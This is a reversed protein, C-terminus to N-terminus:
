GVRAMPDLKFAAHIGLVQTRDEGFVNLFTAPHKGFFSVDVRLSRDPTEATAGAVYLAGGEREAEARLDDLSPVHRVDVGQAVADYEIRASPVHDRMAAAVAELVDWDLVDPVFVTESYTRESM